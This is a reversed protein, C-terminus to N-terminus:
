KEKEKLHLYYIKKIILFQTLPSQTPGQIRAEDSVLRTARSLCIVMGLKSTELSVVQKMSGLPFASSIGKTCVDERARSLYQTRM